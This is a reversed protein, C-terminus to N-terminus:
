VFNYSSIVLVLVFLVILYVSNSNSKEVFFVPAVSKISVSANTFDAVTSVVGVVVVDVVSVEAYYSRIAYM